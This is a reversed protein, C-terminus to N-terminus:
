DPVTLLNRHSDSNQAKQETDNEIKIRNNQNREIVAARNRPSQASDFGGFLWIMKITIYYEPILPHMKTEPPSEVITILFCEVKERRCEGLYYICGDV